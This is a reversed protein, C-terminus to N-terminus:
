AAARWRFRDLPIVLTVPSTEHELLAGTPGVALVRYIPMGGAEISVLDGAQVPDSAAHDLLTWEVAHSLSM